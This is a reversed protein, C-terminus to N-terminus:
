CRLLVFPSRAYLPFEICWCSGPLQALNPPNSPRPMMRSSSLSSILFLCSYPWHPHPPFHLLLFMSLELIFFLFFLIFQLSVSCVSSFHSVPRKEAMLTSASAPESLGMGRLGPGLTRPSELGAHQLPLRRRRLPGKGAQPSLVWAERM